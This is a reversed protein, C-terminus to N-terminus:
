LIVAEKTIRVFERLEVLMSLDSMTEILYQLILCARDHADCPTVDTFNALLNFDYLLSSVVDRQSDDQILHYRVEVFGGAILDSIVMAADDLVDDCTEKYDPLDHLMLEMSLYGVDMKDHGEGLLM